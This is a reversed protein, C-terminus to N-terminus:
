CSGTGTMDVEAGGYWQFVGNKTYYLLVVFKRSVGDDTASMHAVVTQFPSMTLTDPIITMGGSPASGCIVIGPGISIPVDFNNPNTVNLNIESFSAVTQPSSIITLDQFPPPAPTATPLPPAATATPMLTATATATETPLPTSTVFLTATPGAVGLTLPTPTISTAILPSIQAVAGTAMAGAAGTSVVATIITAVLIGSPVPQLARASLPGITRRTALFRRARMLEKHAEALEQPTKVTTSALAPTPSGNDILETLADITTGLGVDRLDSKEGESLHRLFARVYNIFIVLTLIVPGLPILSILLVRVERPSRDFTRAFLWQVLLGVIAAIQFLQAIVAAAVLVALIQPMFSPDIPLAFLKSIAYM